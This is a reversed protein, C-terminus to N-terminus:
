DQERDQQEVWEAIQILQEVRQEIWEARQILQEDRPRDLEEEGYYEAMQRLARALQRFLRAQPRLAEDQRGSREAQRANWAIRRELDRQRQELGIICDHDIVILNKGSMRDFFEVGYGRHSPVFVIRIVQRGWRERAEREADDFSCVFDGYAQFCSLVLAVIAIKLLYKM